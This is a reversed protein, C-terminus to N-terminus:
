NKIFLLLQLGFSLYCNNHFGATEIGCATSFVIQLTPMRSASNFSNRLKYLIPIVILFHSAINLHLGVM